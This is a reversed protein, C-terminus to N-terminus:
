SRPPADDSMPSILPSHNGIKDEVGLNEVDDDTESVLINVMAAYVHYLDQQLQPKFLRTLITELRVLQRGIQKASATPGKKQFHPEDLERGSTERDASLGRRNGMDDNAEENNEEEEEVNEPASNSDGNERPKGGLITDMGLYLQRDFEKLNNLNLLM